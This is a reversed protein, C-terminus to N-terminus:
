NITSMVFEIKSIGFLDFNPFVKISGGLLLICTKNNRLWELTRYCTSNLIHSRLRGHHNTLSM